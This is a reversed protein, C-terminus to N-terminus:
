STQLTKCGRTEGSSWEFVCVRVLCGGDQGKLQWPDTPSRGTYRPAKVELAAPGAPELAGPPVFSRVGTFTPLRARSMQWQENIQPKM